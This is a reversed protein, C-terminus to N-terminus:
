KFRDPNECIVVFGNADIKTNAPFQYGIGKTFKWGGLDVAQSGPNYLEIYDLEGIDDPAHYFIENIVVDAAASLRCLALIGFFAHVGFLRM